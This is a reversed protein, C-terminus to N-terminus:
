RLLLHEWSIGEGLSIEKTTKSGLIIEWFRPHLGPTLNRESRLIRINELSLAAGKPIDRIAHISRKDNPYLEQEAPMVEKRGHGLAVLIKEEGFRHSLWKLQSQPEITELERIIRIMSSLEGPELSFLHDPGPLSRDLTFHKEILSAGCAVAVAPVMHPDKTHDSFGVPVGFNEKMRRIVQLNSQDGPLPYASVCHLLIVEPSGWEKQITWLAEEIDTLTCLGTSCILPKKFRAAQRLLPLHNLEPSAIKFAAINLSALYELGEQDFPTCLFILGLKEATNKLDPVWERPLVLRQFIDFYDVQGGATQVLGCNSPYMWEARFLQFKVADAGAAAATEILRKSASFDQNHNSGIEAVILAPNGSGVRKDAIQVSDAIKTLRVM